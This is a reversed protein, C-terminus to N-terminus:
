LNQRRPMVPRGFLIFKNEALAQNVVAEPLAFPIEDVGLNLDQVARRLNDGMKSLPKYFRHPYFNASILFLHTNYIRNAFGDNFLHQLMVASSADRHILSEITSIVARSFTTFILGVGGAFGKQVTTSFTVLPWFLLRKLIALIIVM